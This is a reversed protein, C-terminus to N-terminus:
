CAEVILRSAATCRQGTSGFGGLVAGEVALHLDADALIVLPNKGGMECQVRIGRRSAQEYLAYGVDNSGTFSIGHVDKNNVIEDGVVSGNGFVLNLVGPPFGAEEFIEAIKVASLPTITATQVCCIEQLLRSCNEVVTCESFEM